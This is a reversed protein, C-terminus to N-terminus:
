FPINSDDIFMMKAMFSLDEVEYRFLLQDLILVQKIYKESGYIKDKKITNHLRLIITKTLSELAEENEGTSEKERQISYVKWYNKMEINLDITKCTKRKVKRNTVSNFRQIGAIGMEDLVKNEAQKLQSEQWDNLCIGSDTIYRLEWQLRGQKQLRNLSSKLANELIKRLKQAYFITLGESINNAKAFTKCGNRVMQNYTSSLIPAINVFIDNFLWEGSDLYSLIIVDMDKAYVQNHNGGRKINQKQTNFVETIIFKHGQKQYSFIREWEKLQAKKSDGGKVPEGLRECLEKYNKFVEGQEINM